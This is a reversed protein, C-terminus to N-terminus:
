SRLGYSVLILCMCVFAIMTLWAAKRGRLGWAARAVLSITSALFAIAAAALELGRDSLMQMGEHHLLTLAGTVIAVTFVPTVLLVLWWHLRDLGTLSIGSQGPTFQKTRLRREM